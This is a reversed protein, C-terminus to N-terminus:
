YRTLLEVRIYDVDAEIEDIKFNSVPEGLYNGKGIVEIIAPQLCVNTAKKLNHYYGHEVPYGSKNRYFTFSAGNFFGGYNGLYYVYKYEPKNDGDVDVYIKFGDPKNGDYILEYACQWKSYKDPRIWNYHKQKHLNTQKNVRRIQKAKKSLFLM